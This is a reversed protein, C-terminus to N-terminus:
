LRLKEKYQLDLGEFLNNLFEVDKNNELNIFSGDKLRHYKKNLKYKQLIEKIEKKDIPLKELDIELLNNNVKVGVVTKGSKKSKKNDFRDTTYVKSIAIYDDLENYANTQRLIRSCSINKPTVDETNNSFRELIGVPVEKNIKNECM